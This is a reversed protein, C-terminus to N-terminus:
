IVELIGAAIEDYEGQLARLKNLDDQKKELETELRKITGKLMRIYREDQKQELAKELQSMKMDINKGYSNRLSELRRDVFVDNNKKVEERIKSVRELFIKSAERCAKEAFDKDVEYGSDSSDLGKEVMEGLIEETRDSGGAENLKTDLLVMELTNGGRAAHIKLKFVFYFYYEKSLKDSRLVVHHVNSYLCEDESYHKVIAQTLPHLVNLFDCKPNDFATQSDFTIPVGQSTTSLYRILEGPVGCRALFGRLKDDPFLKGLNTKSDHELRSRPCNNKL